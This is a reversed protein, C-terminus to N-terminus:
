FKSVGYLNYIGIINPPFNHHISIVKNASNLDFEAFAVYTNLNGDGVIIGFRITSQMRLGCAIGSVGSPAAGVFFDYSRWSSDFTDGVAIINGSGSGSSIIM